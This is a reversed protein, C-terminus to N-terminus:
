SVLSRKVIWEFREALAILKHESKRVQNNFYSYMMLAPIAVVLGMLTTILAEAIGPAVTTIDASQKEAIRVFAHILGWVTGFLGVLPAAAASVALIPLFEEEQHVIDHVAQDLSSQILEFEKIDLRNKEGSDSQLLKKIVMAGYSLVYGPVTNHLQQGVALLDQLNQVSSMAIQAKEYQDKKIRLLAIKYLFIAWCVISMCLLTLLVLKSMFDAQSVLQWLFNGSFMGFM